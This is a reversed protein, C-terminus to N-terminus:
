EDNSASGDADGAFVSASLSRDLLALRVLSVFGAVEGDESCVPLGVANSNRQFSIWGRSIGLASPNLADSKMWALFRGKGVEDEEEEGEESM